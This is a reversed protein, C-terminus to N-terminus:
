WEISSGVLGMGHVLERCSTAGEVPQWLPLTTVEPWNFSRCRNPTVLGSIPISAVHVLRSRCLSFHEDLPGSM